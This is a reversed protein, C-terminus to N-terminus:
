AGNGGTGQPSVQLALESIKDNIRPNDETRELQTRIRKGTGSARYVPPRRSSKVGIQAKASLIADIKWPRYYQLGERGLGTDM